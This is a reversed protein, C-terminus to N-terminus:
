QKEPHNRKYLKEYTTALSTCQEKHYDPTNNRCINRLGKVSFPEKLKGDLVADQFHQFHSEYIYGSSIMAEALIDADFWLNKVGTDEKTAEKEAKKAIHKMYNLVFQVCKDDCIDMFVNEFVSSSFTNERCVKLLQKGSFPVPISADLFYTRIDKKYLCEVRDMWVHRAYLLEIEDSDLPLIEANLQESSTIVTGSYVTMPIFLLFSILFLKKMIEIGGRM